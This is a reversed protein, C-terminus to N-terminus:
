ARWAPQRVDPVIAPRTGHEHPVEVILPTDCGNNVPQEHEPCFPAGTYKCACDYFKEEVNFM